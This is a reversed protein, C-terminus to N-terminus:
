DLVEEAPVVVIPCVAHHICHSSVSGLRLGSFGGHGRSGVVLLDADKAIRLLVEAANGEELMPHLIVSSDTIMNTEKVIQDLVEKHYTEV